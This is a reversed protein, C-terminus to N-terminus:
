LNNTDLIKYNDSDFVCLAKLTEYPVGDYIASAGYHFHGQLVLSVKSAHKKIIDRASEANRVQHRFDVCPDLNEHILVICPAKSASLTSDLMELQEPPISADDWKEGAEDFHRLNERYNADIGVITASDDGICFPALLVGERAIEERSLVLFDHNGGVLYFPVGLSSIISVTDRLHALTDSKQENTARDTLDGLCIVADVGEDRFIEVLSILRERALRPRRGLGLDDAGCIHSDTFIGLRM